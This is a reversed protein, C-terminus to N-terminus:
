GLWSIVTLQFSSQYHSDSKLATVEPFEAMSFPPGMGMHVASISSLLNLPFSPPSPTQPSGPPSPSSIILCTHDLYVTCM